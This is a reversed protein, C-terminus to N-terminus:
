LILKLVVCLAIGFIDFVAIMGVNFINLSIFINTYPELANIIFIALVAM